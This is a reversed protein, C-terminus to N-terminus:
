SDRCADCRWPCIDWITKLFSSGKEVLSSLLGRVKGTKHDHDVSLVDGNKERRGCIACKGKQNLFMEVYQAKTIGYSKRFRKEREATIMHTVYRGMDQLRMHERAEIRAMKRAAKDVVCVQCCVAYRARRGPLREFEEWPKVQGCSLCTKGDRKDSIGVHM